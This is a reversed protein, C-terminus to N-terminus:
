SQKDGQLFENLSDQSVHWYKGIKVAHLKGAKLYTYVTRPTIRLMEAIQGVSYFKLEKNDM